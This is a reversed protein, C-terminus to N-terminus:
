RVGPPARPRMTATTSSTPTCSMPDGGPRRCSEAVAATESRRSAPRPGAATAPRRRPCRRQRYPQAADAGGASPVPRRDTAQPRMRYILANGYEREDRQDGGGTSGHSLGAARVGQGIHADEQDSPRGPLTTRMARRRASTTRPGSKGRAAKRRSQVGPPDLEGRHKKAERVVGTKRGGGVAGVDGPLGEGKAVQAPEDDAGPRLGDGPCGRWRSRAAAATALVTGTTQRRTVRSWSDLVERRVGCWTAV